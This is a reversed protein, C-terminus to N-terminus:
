DIKRYIDIPKNQDNKWVSWGNEPKWTLMAAALSCSNFEVDEQLVNDVISCAKRSEDIIKTTTWGNGRIPCCVSGAKVIFKGDKYEMIGTVEREPWAKIKKTMHYTGEPLKSSDRKNTVEDFVDDKSKDAPYVQNGEFSSLLQVVLDVDLAFLESNELKSKSFIEDLLREKNDYDDVEIAFHRKLGVVNSYGHRELQYMRSEFNSSGTKGIKILGPVVTTMVYLIGKAMDHEEVKSFM